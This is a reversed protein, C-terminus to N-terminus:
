SSFLFLARGYRNCLWISLRTQWFDDKTPQHFGDEQKRGASPSSVRRLRARLASERFRGQSFLYDSLLQIREM